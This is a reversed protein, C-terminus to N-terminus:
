DYKLKIIFDVYLKNVPETDIVLEAGILEKVMPELRLLANKFRVEEDSQKSINYVAIFSIIEDGISNADSTLNSTSSSEDGHPIRFAWFKHEPSDGEMGFAEDTKAIIDFDDFIDLLMEMLQIYKGNRLRRVWNPTNSENYRKIYKM